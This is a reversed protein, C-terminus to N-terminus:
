FKKDEGIENIVELQWPGTSEGAKIKEAKMDLAMKEQKLRVDLESRRLDDQAQQVAKMQDIEAKPVQYGPVESPSVKMEYLLRPDVVEEYTAGHPDLTKATIFIILNRKL